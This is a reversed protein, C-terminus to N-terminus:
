GDEAEKKCLFTMECQAENEAAGICRALTDLGFEEAEYYLATLQDEIKKLKEKTTEKNEEESLERVNELTWDHGDDTQEWDVEVKQSYATDDYAMDLTDGKAIKWAEEENPALIIAAYGVDKTATVKFKKNEGILTYYPEGEIWKNWGELFDKSNYNKWTSSRDRNIEEIMRDITWVDTGGNSLDKIVFTRNM